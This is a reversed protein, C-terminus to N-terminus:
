TLVYEVIEPDVSYDVDNAMNPHMTVEGTRWSHSGQTDVAQIVSEQAPGM